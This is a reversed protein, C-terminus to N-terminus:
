KTNRRRTMAAARTTLLASRGKPQAAVKAVPFKASKIGKEVGCLFTLKETGKDVHGEITPRNTNKYGTSGTLTVTDADKPGTAATLKVLEKKADYDLARLRDLPVFTLVGEALTTSDLERVELM